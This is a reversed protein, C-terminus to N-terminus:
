AGQRDPSDRSQILTFFGSLGAICRARSPRRYHCIQFLKKSWSVQDRGTPGAAVGYCGPQRVQQLSAPRYM